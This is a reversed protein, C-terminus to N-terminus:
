QNNLITIRTNMYRCRGNRAQNWENEERAAHAIRVQLYKRIIQKAIPVAHGNLGESHPTLHKLFGMELADNCLSNVLYPVATGAAQLGKKARTERFASEAMTCLKVVGPSGEYLSTIVRRANKRTILPDRVDADSILAGACENCDLCPIVKKVVFGAIYPVCSAKFASLEQIECLEQYDEDSIENDFTTTPNSGSKWASSVHLM